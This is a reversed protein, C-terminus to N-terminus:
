ALKIREKHIKFKPNKALKKQCKSWLVEVSDDAVANGARNLYEAIIKKQFKKLPLEKDDEARLIAKGITCWKVKASKTDDNSLSVNNSQQDCGSNLKQVSESENRSKKSGNTPNEKEDNESMKRKKTETTDTSPDSDVPKKKSQADNNLKQQEELAKSILDWSKEAIRPNLRNGLSSKLFNQFCFSTYHLNLNEFKM